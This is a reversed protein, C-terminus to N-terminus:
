RAPQYKWYSGHDTTKKQLLPFRKHPPREGTQILLGIDSLLANNEAYSSHNLHLGETGAATVDITDVGSLVLPGTEPVDGARPIGGNFRRSVSLARDNGAAYLTLGGKALGDIEKAINEFSDRDVDPAALIVESIAIGEPKRYRLDRLIQLVPQNGMSHAIISVTKAGTKEMVLKFFDRMFPHSQGASERDYTYSEFSGGSPWSYLFPAGDFKLDYAMQATRYIASDFATNYGHVFIIAHDKYRSSTALREKVFALFQGETLAQVQQMTFHKKPDETEEYIKINFVKIAWPREINPVEHSKPITVLARGLELKRGRDSGYAIRHEHATRARDTGYFVPVVDWDKQEEVAATGPKTVGADPAPPPSAMEPQAMPAVPPPPAASRPQVSRSAAAGDDHEARRRYYRRATTNREPQARSPASTLGGGAPAAPEAGSTGGGEAESDAMENKDFRETHEAGAHKETDAPKKAMKPADCGSVALALPLALAMFIRRVTLSQAYPWGIRNHYM